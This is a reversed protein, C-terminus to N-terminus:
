QGVSMKELAERGSMGERVGLRSAAQNAEKVVGGLLDAVSTVASGDASGVKVAGINFRDLARVDFAGCGILANRAAAFVLNVSDSLEVAYGIARQGGGLAIETTRM